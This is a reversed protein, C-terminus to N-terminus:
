RPSFRYFLNPESVVYLNGAADFEVGEAQRVNAALGHEGRRLSLSGVRQGTADYEALRKSEDSLLLLHGSPEHVSLSSLDHLEASIRQSPTWERIELHRGLRGDQPSIGTIEIVRRPSKENAVLLRRGQRDWALGEFGRNRALDIALRLSPVEGVDLASDQPGIRAFFIQQSAEDALAFLDGELHAIGELDSLGAVPIHRLLRGETSLEVVAPPRNVVMFLTDTAPNFALGSANAPVGAIPRAEISVRYDALGLGAAPPTGDHWWARQLWEAAAPAYQQWGAWSVALLVALWIYRNVQWRRLM